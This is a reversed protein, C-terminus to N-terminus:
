AQGRHVQKAEAVIAEWRAQGKGWRIIIESEKETYECDSQYWVWWSENREVGYGEPEGVLIISLPSFSWYVKLNEIM